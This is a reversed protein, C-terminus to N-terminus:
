SSLKRLKPQREAERLLKDALQVMAAKPIAFVHPGLETEFIIAAEDTGRITGTNVASARIGIMSITEDAQGSNPDIQRRLKDWVANIDYLRGMLKMLMDHTIALRTAKSGTFFALVASDATEALYVRVDEVIAADDKTM